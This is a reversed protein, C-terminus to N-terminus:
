PEAEAPTGRLQAYIRALEAVQEASFLLGLTPSIEFRGESGRIASILSNKKVKEIAAKARREFGAPDTNLHREYLQMHSLMEDQSVVAREGRLEAEALLGRLHLLLASELFTLPARRLLIPADLDGTEAQRVFAVQQDTDLVLDLFLDNLRSRIADRHQLLAPWLHRHRRGDLSPGILLQVLVRRAELPLEGADGEFLAASEAEAEIGADDTPLSEDPEPM